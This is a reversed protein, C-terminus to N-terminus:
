QFLLSRILSSSSYGIAGRTRRDHVGAGQLLSHAGDQMRKYHNVAIFVKEPDTGLTEM